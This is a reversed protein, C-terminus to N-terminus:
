PEERKITYSTNIQQNGAQTKNIKMHKMDAEMFSSHHKKIM